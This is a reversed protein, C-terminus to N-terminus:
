ADGYGGARDFHGEIKMLAKRVQRTPLVPCGDSDYHVNIGHKRNREIVEPVQDPHVALADSVLPKWGIL